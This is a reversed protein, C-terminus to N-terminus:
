LMNLKNILYIMIMDKIQLILVLNIKLQRKLADISGSLLKSVIFENFRACIIGVKLNEGIFNGEYIKVM